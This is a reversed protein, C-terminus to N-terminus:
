PIRICEQRQVSDSLIVQVLFASLLKGLDHCVVPLLQFVNWISWQGEKLNAVHNSYQSMVSQQRVIGHLKTAQCMQVNHKYTGAAHLVKKLTALDWAPHPADM